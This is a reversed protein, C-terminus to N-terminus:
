LRVARLVRTYGGVELVYFYVGLPFRETYFPVQHTGGALVRDEIVADLYQGNVDYAFLSVKSESALCFQLNVDNSHFTPFVKFGSTFDNGECNFHNNIFSFGTGITDVVDMTDVPMITDPISLIPASCNYRDLATLNLDVGNPLAGLYYPSRDPHKIKYFFSDTDNDMISFPPTGGEFLIKLMYSDSGELEIKEYTASLNSNLSDTCFYETSRVCDLMGKISGYGLLEQDPISRKYIFVQALNGEQYNSYGRCENFTYCEINLDGGLEYFYEELADDTWLYDPLYVSLEWVGTEGVGDECEIKYLLPICEPCMSGGCDVNLEDGNMEKDGCNQSFGDLSFIACFWLM